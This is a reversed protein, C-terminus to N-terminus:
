SGPQAFGTVFRDAGVEAIEEDTSTTTVRPVIAQLRERLEEDSM